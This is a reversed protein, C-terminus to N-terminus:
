VDKSLDYYQEALRDSVSTVRDALWKFHPLYHVYGTSSYYHVYPLVNSLVRDHLAGDGVIRNQLATEFDRNFQEDPEDMMWVGLRTIRKRLARGVVQAPRGSKLRLLEFDAVTDRLDKEPVTTKEVSRILKLYHYYGEMSCFKGHPTNNVFYTFNSLERGLRTLGGSYINIHTKGDDSIRYTTGDIDVSQNKM